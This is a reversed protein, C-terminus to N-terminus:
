IQFIDLFFWNWCLLSHLLRCELCFYCHLSFYLVSLADFSCFIDLVHVTVCMYPSLSLSFPTVCYLAKFVLIFTYKVKDLLYFPLMILTWKLFFLSSPIWFSVKHIFSVLLTPSTRSLERLIIFWFTSSVCLLLNKVYIMPLSGVCEPLYLITLVIGWINKEFLCQLFLCTEKLDERFYM